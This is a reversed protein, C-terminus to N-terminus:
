VDLSDGLGGDTPQGASATDFTNGTQDVFLGTSDQLYEQFVHDTVCDRVGLVGLPLGDGGHVDHVSEFSLATSQITESTLHRCYKSKFNLFM